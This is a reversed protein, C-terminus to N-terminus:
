GEEVRQKRKRRKKKNREVCGSTEKIFELDSSM